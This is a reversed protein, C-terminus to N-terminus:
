NDLVDTKAGKVLRDIYDDAYSSKVSVKKHKKLGRVILADSNVAKKEIWDIIESERFKLIRSSLKIHPIKNQSTWSYITAKAIGLLESIEDISLLKEM